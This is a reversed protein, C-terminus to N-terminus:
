EGPRALLRGNNIAAWPLDARQDTNPVHSAQAYAVAHRSDAFASAVGWHRRAAAATSETIGNGHGSYWAVCLANRPWAVCSPVGIGHLGHLPKVLSRCDNGAVANPRPGINEAKIRSLSGLPRWKWSFLPVLHCCCFCKEKAHHCSRGRKETRSGAGSSNIASRGFDRILIWALVILCLGL